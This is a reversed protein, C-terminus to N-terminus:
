ASYPSSQISQSTSQAAVFGCPVRWQGRRACPSMPVTGKAQRSAASRLRRGTSLRCRQCMPREPECSSWDFLIQRSVTYESTVETSTRPAAEISNHRLDDDNLVAVCQQRQEHFVKRTTGAVACEDRVYVRCAHRCARAYASVYGHKPHCFLFHYPSNPVAYWTTDGRSCADGERAYNVLASSCLWLSMTCVFLATIFSSRPM